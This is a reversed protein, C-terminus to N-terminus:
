GALAIKGLEKKARDLAEHLKTLMEGVGSFDTRYEIVGISFDAKFTDHNPVHFTLKGFEERLRNALNMAFEGRTMPLLLLFKDGGYRFVMDAKRINNLINQVVSQLVRDGLNRGHRDNIKKFHNLDIMLLSFPAHGPEALNWFEVLIKDLHRRNYAGTLDDRIPREAESNFEQNSRRKEQKSRRRSTIWMGLLIGLFTFLCALFIQQALSPNAFSWM